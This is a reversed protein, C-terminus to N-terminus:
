HKALEIGQGRAIVATALCNGLLNTGTRAMDMLEDVALILAIGELPLGFATLTTSLVVISARPVAAVGKSAVMLMAMMALQKQLSLEIGAAQAVFVSALALYLTSGDLNFSYGLPLVFSSIRRPVGLDELSDLALPYAAESTTTAFALTFPARVRRLFPMVPVKFLLAVPLLVVLIFIVLGLYLSGVLKMLPLIVQWGQEEVALAIAAAVGLPALYMIMGTFKFMVESLAQCFHLVPKAKEGAAVVGLAFITTFIVIQLVDGRVIADAINTPLLHEVFGGVTMHTQAAKSVSEPVATGISLGQGPKMINVVLLGVVLALTTVVEFYVMSWFGIKGMEKFSGSGGIGTVLTAFILPAIICKVGSMFLARFPHLYPVLGPLYVGVLFGGILGIFIWQTLNIKLIPRFLQAMAQM